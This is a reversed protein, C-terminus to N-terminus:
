AEQGYFWIRIQYISDDDRELSRYFVCFCNNGFMPSTVYRM